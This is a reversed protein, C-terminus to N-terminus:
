DGPNGPNATANSYEMDEGEEGMRDSSEKGGADLTAVESRGDSDETNADPASVDDILKKEDNENYNCEITDQAYM